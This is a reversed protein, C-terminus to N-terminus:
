THGQLGASEMVTKVPQYEEKGEKHWQSNYQRPEM